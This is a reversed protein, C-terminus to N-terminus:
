FLQDVPQFVPVVEKGGVREAVEKYDLFMVKKKLTSVYDNDETNRVDTVEGDEFLAIISSDIHPCETIKRKGTHVAGALALCTKEGCLKCNSKELLSFIEMTNKPKDM